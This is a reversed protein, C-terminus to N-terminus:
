QSTASLVLLTNYPFFPFPPILPGEPVRVGAKGVADTVPHLLSPLSVGTLKKKSLSISSQLLTGTAIAKKSTTTIHLCGPSMAESEMPAKGRQREM